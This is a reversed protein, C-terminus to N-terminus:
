KAEYLLSMNAYKLMELFREKKKRKKFAFIELYGFINKGLPFNDINLM